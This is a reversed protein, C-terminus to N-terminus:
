SRDHSVCDQYEVCARRADLERNEEGPVARELRHQATLDFREKGLRAELGLIGVAVLEFALRPGVARLEPMGTREFVQDSVQARLAAFMLQTRDSVADYVTAQGIRRRDPDIFLNKGHELLEHRQRRQVLRVVERRDAAQQCGRWLQRLDGAEIGSEMRRLRRQRLAERQRRLNGIAAYPAVAEM